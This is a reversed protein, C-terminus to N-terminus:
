HPDREAAFARRGLKVAAVSATATGGFPEWIVDGPRTAACIIRSMLELPKQHPHAVAKGTDQLSGRFRESDRLSPPSWVNTLGHADAWRDQATAAVAGSEVREELRLRYVACVETVVPFVAGDWPVEGSIGKDWVIMQVFEWGQGDLEPHLLAWGLETNWIWLTTGRCAAATWAMIHDRYWCILDAQDTTGGATEGDRIEYRGDSIIAAPTRWDPYAGDSIIAAPAPWDPYADRADGRHLTFLASDARSM